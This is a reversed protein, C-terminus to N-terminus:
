SNGSALLKASERAIKRGGDVPIFTFGLRARGVSVKGTRSVRRWSMDATVHCRTRDANCRASFTGPLEHYARQPWARIYAQKDALVQARSFHKGYYVVQPAYFRDVAAATVGSNSSWMALYAQLAHEADAETGNDTQTQAVAGVSSTVLTAVVVLVARVGKRMDQAPTARRCAAGPQCFQTLIAQGNRM